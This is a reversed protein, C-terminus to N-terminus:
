KNHNSQATIGRIASYRARVESRMLNHPARRGTFLEFQSIGQEPFVQLGDITIWGRDEFKRVQQLLPTELPAYSLEIFAGGTRSSLWMPPITINPNPICSVIVNPPATPNQWTNDMSSIVTVTFPRSSTQIGGHPVPGDTPILGGTSVDYQKGNFQAALTEANKQTRNWVYIHEVGLYIMSYVAARAMGGAGLVLGVTRGHLANIPSLNRRICTHIGIWDTNEGYLALIKGQKSRDLLARSNRTRLPLVTNVAGIACAAPSLADLLPIIEAKFPNTISAGGFEHHQLIPAFDQLSSCQFARYVHPMGCYGFAANHLFPSLSSAVDTGFIGFYLPDMHSSAYLGKLAMPVTLMWDSSDNEQRTEVALLPSIVPTFIGNAMCSKRGLPGTNYAIIPIKTNEDLRVDQLFKQASIEDAESLAPQCIRVMDCGLSEAQRILGYRAPSEWADSGPIEDYFHGILKSRGKQQLLPQIEEASFHFDVTVYDTGLRVGHGVLETYLRTYNVKSSNLLRASIRVHYIIPLGVNRRLIYFNRTIWTATEHTLTGDIGLNEPVDIILELADAMVDGFRINEIMSGARAIPIALAFTYPRLELPVMSTATQARRTRGLSLRGTISTLLKLFDREVTKLVLSAPQDDHQEDIDHVCEDNTALESDKLNYFEYNSLKRFVPNASQMIRSIIGSDPLKLYAATANACRMVYIVPHTKGFDLLLQQGSELVASQGCVIVSRTSHDQLVMRMLQLQKETCSRQGYKAIFQAEAMGAAKRFIVDIDILRFGLSNAALLGLTSRGTGRIGVLAISADQAFSPSGM